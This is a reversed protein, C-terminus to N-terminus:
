EVDTEENKENKSYAIAGDRRCLEILVFIAERSSNKNKTKHM